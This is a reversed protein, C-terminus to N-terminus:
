CFVSHHFYWKLVIFDVRSHFYTILMIYNTSVFDRLVRKLIWWSMHLVTVLPPPVFLKIIINFRPLVSFIFQRLMHRYLASDYRQASCLTWTCLHMCYPHPVSKLPPLRFSWCPCMGQDQRLRLLRMGLIDSLIMINCNSNLRMIIKVTTMEKNFVPHLFFYKM